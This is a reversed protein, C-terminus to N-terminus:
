MRGTSTDDARPAQDNYRDRFRQFFSTGHHDSLPSCDYGCACIERVKVLHPVVIRDLYAIDAKLVPM